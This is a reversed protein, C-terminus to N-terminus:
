IRVASILDAYAMVCSPPVMMSPHNRLLASAAHAGVDVSSLKACHYLAEWALNWNADLNGEDSGVFHVMSTLVAFLKDSRAGKWDFKGSNALFDQPTPLDAYEVFQMFEIAHGNGVCGSAVALREDLTECFPLLLSMNHWSRPSAWAKGAESPVPPVGPAILHRRTSLYGAVAGVDLVNHMKARPPISLSDFGGVLGDLWRAADITHDIHFFRNALPPALEWGGAAQETPNAIAIVRVHDALKVDGVFREQVIRLMAAQVAPTSTTLEDLVLVAGAPNGNLDAVWRPAVLNVWDGNVVPLGGFDEPMRINGSIARVTMGQAEFMSVIRATKGVGPQGRVLAPVRAECAIAILRDSLVTNSM